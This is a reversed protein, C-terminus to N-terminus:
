FISPPTMTIRFTLNDYPSKYAYAGMRYYSGVGFGFGYFEVLRNFEIGSEFYGKELTKIGVYRNTAYSTGWAARGILRIDFNYKDTLKIKSFTHQIGLTSVFNDAFELDKMTEFGMETSFHIRRYWDRDSDYYAKSLPSYLHTLRTGKSAFGLRLVVESYHKNLYTKKYDTQFDMRYFDQQNGWIPMSKELNFYFKPYGSELVQREHAGLFFKSFPQYELGLNMSTVATNSFAIGGLSVVAHKVSVEQKKINITANLTNFLLHSIGLEYATSEYFKDYSVYGLVGQM